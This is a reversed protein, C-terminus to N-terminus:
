KGLMGVKLDADAPDPGLWNRFLADAFEKGEVTASPGGEIGVTSGPGPLYSVTMVQGSKIEAPLIRAVQELKASAAAASGPSNKEFGERFAGLISDRDVDRLFHMRVLKPADAAVLAGPDSSRSEVYLAGVYVKFLFRKRLGAGNLVLAKGGLTADPAVTVGAVEVRRGGPPLGMFEHQHTGRITHRIALRDGEAVMADATIQIDPFAARMREVARDLMRELHSLGLHFQHRPPDLHFWDPGFLRAQWSEANPIGVVLVGDDALDGVIRELTAM